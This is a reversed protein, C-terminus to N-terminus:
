PKHGGAKTRERLAKMRAEAEARKRQMEEPGFGGADGGGSPPPVAEVSGGNDTITTVVSTAREAKEIRHEGTGDRVVVGGDDISVLELTGGEALTISKGELVMRQRDGVKLLAVKRNPELVAGLYKVESTSPKDPQSEEMPEDPMRAITPKNSVLALRAAASNLDHSEHPKDAKGDTIPAPEPWTIPGPAVPSEGVGPLRSFVAALALGGGAIAAIQAIRKGRRAQQQTLSRGSM